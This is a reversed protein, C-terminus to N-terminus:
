VHLSMVRVSTDNAPMHLNETAITVLEQGSVSPLSESIEDYRPCPIFDLDIHTKALLLAEMEPTLIRRTDFQQLMAHERRKLIRNVTFYVAILIFLFINLYYNILNSSCHTIPQHYEAEVSEDICNPPSQYRKLCSDCYIGGIGSNCACTRNNIAIGYKCDIEDCAAGKWGYFCHCEYNIKSGHRCNQIRECFSGYYNKYCVCQKLESNWKGGSPFCWTSNENSFSKQIKWIASEATYLITFFLCVVKLLM